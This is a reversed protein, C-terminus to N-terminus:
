SLIPTRDFKTSNKELVESIRYFIQNFEGIRVIEGKKLLDYLDRRITRKTIGPIEKIIDSVQARGKESLIQLIRGQRASAKHSPQDQNILTKPSAQNQINEPSEFNDVTKVDNGPNLQKKDGLARTELVVKLNQRIIGKPVIIQSKIKEYEKAFILFNVNNIWGQHKALKLYSELVEIDDLLQVSAREKKLSAWGKASFVLTLNELIELVKEKARNKLPDGEPFFDLLKYTANTIKVFNEEM